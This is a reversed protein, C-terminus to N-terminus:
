GGGVVDDGFDLASTVGEALDFRLRVVLASVAAPDTLEYMTNRVSRAAGSILGIIPAYGADPEQVLRYNADTAYARPVTFFALVTCGCCTVALTVIAMAVVSVTRVSISTRRMIRIRILNVSM